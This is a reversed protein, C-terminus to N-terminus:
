GRPYATIMIDDGIRDVSHYQLLHRQSMGTHEKLSFIGKGNGLIQPAIFFYYKDILGEREFSSLLTEGAELMVVSIERNYLEALIAAADIEEEPLKIVKVGMEVLKAVKSEDANKNCFVITDQQMSSKVIKSTLPIRLNNDLVVRVPQKCYIENRNNLEPDDKIVTGIGTIIADMESRLEHVKRGSQEGSIWKSSGDGGATFGDITMATKMIVFPRQKKMNTLYYELQTNIESEMIGLEVKIGASKLQEIGKGNVKPNPDKIGIYISSIGARIIAETCPPTRGQFCCPELTVYMEAGSSKNGARKLAQIEAHDSGCKQTVGKGVVEGDKVIVCGVFPNPSTKGRGTEAIDLAAQMLSLDAGM